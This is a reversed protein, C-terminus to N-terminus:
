PVTNGEAYDNSGGIIMSYALDDFADPFILENFTCNFDGGVNESVHLLSTLKNNRIILDRGIADPCGELSTIWNNYCSLHGGISAPCNILNVLKNDNVFFDGGVSTPMNILSLLRNNNCYFNGTIVGFKVPLVVMECDSIDVTGEVDVVGSIVTYNEIDLFDLIEEITKDAPNYDAWQNSRPLSDDM